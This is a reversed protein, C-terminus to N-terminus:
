NAGPANVRNVWVVGKTEKWFFRRVGLTPKGELYGAHSIGDSYHIGDEALWVFNVWRILHGLLSAKLLRLTMM